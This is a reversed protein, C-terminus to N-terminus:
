RSSYLQMAFKRRRRVVPAATSAEAADSRSKRGGAMGSKVVSGNMCVHIRPSLEVLAGTDWQVPASFCIVADSAMSPLTYWIRPAHAGGATVFGPGAVSSAAPTLMEGPALSMACKLSLPASSQLM